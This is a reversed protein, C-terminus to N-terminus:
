EEEEEEEEMRILQCISKPVEVVIGPYRLDQCIVKSRGKKIVRLKQGKFLTDSDAKKSGTFVVGWFTLRINVNRDACVEQVCQSLSINGFRFYFKKNYRRSNGCRGFLVFNEGKDIDSSHKNLKEIFTILNDDTMKFKHLRIRNLKGKIIPSFSAKPFTKNLSKKLKVFREAAENMNVLYAVSGDPNVAVFCYISNLDPLIIAEDSIKKILMSGEEAISLKYASVYKHTGAELGEGSEIKLGKLVLDAGDTVVTRGLKDYAAMQRTSLNSIRVYAGAQAEPFPVLTEDSEPSFEEKMSYYAVSTGQVTLCLCCCLIICIGICRLVCIPLLQEPQNNM